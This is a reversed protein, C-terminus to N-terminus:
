SKRAVFTYGISLGELPALKGLVRFIPRLVYYAFFVYFIPIIINSKFSFLTRGFLSLIAEYYTGRPTVESYSFLLLLNKVGHFTFRYFDFPSEHIPIVFPVSGFLVGEDKLAYYINSIAANPSYLHELVEYCLVADYESLGIPDKCIDICLNPNLDQNIDVTIIQWNCAIAYEQIRSTIGGAAGICLVKSRPKISSCHENVCEYLYARSLKKSLKFAHRLFSLM